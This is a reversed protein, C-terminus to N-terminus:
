DAYSPDGDALCQSYSGSKTVCTAPYCCPTANNSAATIPQCEKWRPVCQSKRIPEGFPILKLKNGGWCVNECINKTIVAANNAEWCDACVDFNQSCCAAGTVPYPPLPNTEDTTPNTPNSTPPLSVVIPPQTPVATTYRSEGCVEEYTNVNLRTNDPTNQEVDLLAACAPICYDILMPKDVYTTFFAPRGGDQTPKDIAKTNEDGQPDGICLGLPRDVNKVCVFGSSEINCDTHDHCDGVIKSSIPVFM